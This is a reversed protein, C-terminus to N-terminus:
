VAAAPTIPAQTTSATILTEQLLVDRERDLTTDARREGREVPPDCRGTCCVRDGQGM